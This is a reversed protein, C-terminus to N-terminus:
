IPGALYIRKCRKTGLHLPQLLQDLAERLVNQIRLELQALYAACSAEAGWMRGDIRLRM